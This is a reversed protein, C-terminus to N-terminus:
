IRGAARRAAGADGGHLPPLDSGAVRGPAFTRVAGEAGGLARSPPRAQLLAPEDAPSRRLVQRLPRLRGRAPGRDSALPLAARDRRRPAPGAARAVGARRPRPRRANAFGTGLGGARRAVGGLQLSQRGPLSRHRPPARHLTAVVHSAYITTGLWPTM